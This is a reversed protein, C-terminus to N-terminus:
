EVDAFSSSSWVEESIERVLDIKAWQSYLPLFFCKIQWFSKM